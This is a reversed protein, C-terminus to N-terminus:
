EIEIGNEIRIERRNEIRNERRNEIRNKMINERRYKRNQERYEIRLYPMPWRPPPDQPGDEDSSHM